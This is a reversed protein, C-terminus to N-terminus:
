ALPEWFRVNAKQRSKPRGPLSLCLDTRSSAADPRVGGCLGVRARSPAVQTGAAPRDDGSRSPSRRSSPTGPAPSPRPRVPTAGRRQRIRLARGAVPGLTATPAVESLGYLPIANVALAELLRPCALLWRSLPAGVSGGSSFPPIM